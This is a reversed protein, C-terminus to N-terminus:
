QMRNSQGACVALMALKSSSKWVASAVSDQHKYLMPMEMMKKRIHTCGELGYGVDGAVLGSVGWGLYARVDRM